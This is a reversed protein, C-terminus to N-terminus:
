GASKVQFGTTGLRYSFIVKAQIKITISSM